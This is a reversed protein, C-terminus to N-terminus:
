SYIVASIQVPMVGRPPFAWWQGEQFFPDTYANNKIFRDYPEPMQPTRKPLVSAPAIRHYEQYFFNEERSLNRLVEVSRHYDAVTQMQEVRFSRVSRASGADGDISQGRMRLEITEDLRGLSLPHDFLDACHRNVRWEVEAFIPVGDVLLRPHETCSFRERLVQGLRVAVRHISGDFDITTHVIPLTITAKYFEITLEQRETDITWVQFRPLHDVPNLLLPFQVNSLYEARDVEVDSYRSVDYAGQQYDELNISSYHRLRARFVDILALRVREDSPVWAFYDGSCLLQAMHGEIRLAHDIRVAWHHRDSNPPIGAAACAERVTNFRHEFLEILRDDFPCYTM